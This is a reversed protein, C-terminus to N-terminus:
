LDINDLIVKKIKDFIIGLKEIKSPHLHENFVKKFVVNIKNEKTPKENEKLAHKQKSTLNMHIGPAEGVYISDTSQEDFEKIDYDMDKLLAEKDEQTFKTKEM